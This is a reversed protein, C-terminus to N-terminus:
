PKMLMLPECEAHAPDSGPLRSLLYAIRACVGSDSARAYSEIDTGVLRKLAWCAPRLVDWTSHFQMQEVRGGFALVMSTIAEIGGADVTMKRFTENKAIYALLATGSIGIRTEQYIPDVPAFSGTSTGLELFRITENIIGLDVMTAAHDDNGSFCMEIVFLAEGSAPTWPWDRMMKVTSPLYGGQIMAEFNERPNSERQCMTSFFCQIALQTYHDHHQDKLLRFALDIGGARKVRRRNDPLFDCFAGISGLIRAVGPAAEFRHAATLMHEIAGARGGRRALDEKWIVSEGLMDSCAIQVMFDTPFRKMATVALEQVGLGVAINQWHPTSRFRLTGSRCGHAQVWPIGPLSRMWFMWALIWIPLYYCSAAIIVVVTAKKMRTLM